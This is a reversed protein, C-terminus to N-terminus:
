GTVNVSIVGPAVVVSNRKAFLLMRADNLDDQPMVNLISPENLAADNKIFVLNAPRVALKKCGILLECPIRDEALKGDPLCVRVARGNLAPKNHLKTLMCVDDYKPVTNTDSDDIREVRDM